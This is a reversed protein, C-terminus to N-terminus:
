QSLIPLATLIKKQILDIVEFVPPAYRKNTQKSGECNVEWLVDGTITSFMVYKVVIKTKSPITQFGVREKDHQLVEQVFGQMIADANIHKGIQNLIQTNPIGTNDYVNLLKDYSNVLSDKNLLEKATIADILIVKPNRNHFERQIMSNIQVLDGTLLSQDKQAFANRLPLIATTNIRVSNLTPSIYSKVTARKISCGYFLFVTTLLPLFLFPSLKKKM